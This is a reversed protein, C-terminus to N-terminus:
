QSVTVAYDDFRLTVPANTAASSLYARLGVSGGSQLAASSNTATFLWATPEPQGDAWAKIQITTPNSGTLQARFWVYTGAAQTVGPVVVAAGLSIESGGVLAGAQVSVTGNTNFVLQPRYENNSNRRGIAYAFFRGATAVKDASIRFRMDVNTQSLENLLASRSRRPGPLLISGVGAAVSYNAATGELSYLGGIDASGWGGSVTRGFADDAITTSLEAATVQYDDFSLTVPANTIASSIYSRLGVAGPTQLAAASNTATYLWAGPEPQGDAWAKIRITTPNTGTLQTRVWVYANPAQTVGTVVIPSGLATESGGVFVGAQISLTGNTNFILQPRYENNANRRAVAYVFYRGGTAVKNATVRFRVDVNAQAVSNLLASRTRGPAPMVMNGAAGDVSYNAATGEVTYPGGIDATGWGSGASRAFADAAIFTQAPPSVTVTKSTSNSGGANSATLTVTFDGPTGYTHNPNQETSTVGDGFTWSWAAPSGTSTDTFAIAMSGALQTWTFDAVPAQPPQEFAATVNVGLASTNNNPHIQLGTVRDGVQVVAPMSWSGDQAVLTSGVYEAPLGSQGAPRSARYAEVTAGAIGTGAIEITTASTVVPPALLDNAGQAPNSSNPALFIAPGSMDTIINRSIRVWLVDPQTLGIGYRGANRIINGEITHTRTNLRVVIGDRTLPAAEGLPSEGIINNRIINGTSNSSATQIGDYVSAVWNGEILNFSSGDYANIGNGNDGGGPNSQGSRFAASYSGDGRFGVWNGVARNNSVLWRGSTDTGSPDWGHSYEIGQLFSPGIMNRETSISGGFVNNKPGFDHDIGSYCTAGSMGSPTLCLVNNQFVNYDAGPGYVYLGKSATSVNRDALAATGITNHHASDVILGTTARYSHVSGVATYGFLNGVVLNHHADSGAIFIGRYFNNILLGRITNNASAVFIGNSRPSGGNGRLEVGPVANSGVAASNVSSGPQSYGDIVVGGSRDQIMLQPLSGSLQIAVPAAGTVNFEIRDEGPMWNAETIAARLTCRGLSDACSGDGNNADSADASTDVVFTLGPAALASAAPLVFDASAVLRARDPVPASAGNATASARVAAAVAQIDAIDVCGDKNADGASYRQDGCAAGNERALAWDARVVDLDMEDFTDDDVPSQLPGAVQAPLVRASDPPAAPRGTGKGVRLSGQAKGGGQLTIRNGNADAVADIIVRFPLQADAQPALVIRMATRGNRSNLGYAGFAVGGPIEVPSLASGGGVPALGVVEAVSTDILIRGDVASVKDPLRFEIAFGADRVVTAPTVLSIGKASSSGALAEFAGGLLTLVMVLAVVLRVM